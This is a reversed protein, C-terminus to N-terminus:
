HTRRPRKQVTFSASASGRVVCDAPFAVTRMRRYPKTDMPATRTLIEALSAPLHELENKEVAVGGDPLDMQLYLHDTRREVVRQVAQFLQEVTRPTFRHPMRSQLAGVAWEGDRVSLAYQGDRLDEPLTLAM